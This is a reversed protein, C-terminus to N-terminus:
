DLGGAASHLHRGRKVMFVNEGSAEAVCGQTDMMIAEQYGAAMVERKALISNVYHGVVKGKAMVSNIGPRTFSSVKARIGRKIGEDGLYAGWKWVVVTLHTRNETAGLGMAGSGLFALPRLYCEELKNVRVTDLCAAQVVEERSQELKMTCIHASEFLREVHEQLRFIASQGNALKYCRIGEFVGLGYHLTHTLVHVKADDWNVLAGDLWIKEVKDVM